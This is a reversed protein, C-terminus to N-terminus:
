AAKEQANLVAAWVAACEVALRNIYEDDRKVRVVCLEHTPEWFSAFDCWRRGTVWMGGQVQAYYDEPCKGSDITRTHRPESFPCKIELLGDEGILGDPSFGVYNLDPHPIWAAHEVTVDCTFEYMACAMPECRTGHAMCENPEVHTLVGTQRERILDAILDLRAKNPKGTRKNLAMVKGFRSGSLKGAKIAKWEPSGQIM